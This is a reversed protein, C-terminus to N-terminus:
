IVPDSGRKKLERVKPGEQGREELRAKHAKPDTADELYILIREYTALKGQEFKLHGPEAKILAHCNLMQENRMWEIAAHILKFADETKRSYLSLSHSELTRQVHALNFSLLKTPPEIIEPGKFFRFIRKFLRVM